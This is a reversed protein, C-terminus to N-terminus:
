LTHSESSTRSSSSSAKHARLTILRNDRPQERSTSTTNPSPTVPEKKVLEELKQAVIELTTKDKPRLSAQRTTPLKVLPKELTQIPKSPSGPQLIVKNDIRDEIKDLQKGIVGLWQNTYNNQDIVKKVVKEEPTAFKFPFAVIDSGRHNFLIAGQPPHSSRVIEPKSFSPADKNPLLKWNTKTIVCSKKHWNFHKEFYEFFPYDSSVERM